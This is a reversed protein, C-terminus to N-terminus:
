SPDRNRKIARASFSEDKSLDSSSIYGAAKAGRNIASNMIREAGRRSHLSVCTRLAGFGKSDKWKAWTGNRLRVTTRGDQRKWVVYVSAM